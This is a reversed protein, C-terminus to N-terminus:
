ATGAREPQPSPVPRRLGRTLAASVLLSLVAQVGIADRVPLVQAIAGAIGAGVAQFTMLGTGLLALAQGRVEPATMSVLREQLLLGAGYGVTAVVVAAVALPLPLHLPFLLFPVALLLRLPTIFRSRQQPPLVRGSLTDGALMGLAAAVFLVGAAHPSYPVFLSECGVVLGNPVWLALYTSRRAPMSWLERNVRWTEGVSARGSARPPRESLGLRSALAAVAYLGASLLLAGRPSVLALLAGGVAFGAIQMVGVAINFVSRGLVYAGEPLIENMLGWRFGGGVSTVLGISLVVALLAWVPMGPVTLVLTALAYTIALTVIARRPPVRDVLSLLFAAGFVQAFSPGFMAVAALFPSHTRSFVLTALALGEMTGAAVQLSAGAFLPTFEPTRFLERYTRM